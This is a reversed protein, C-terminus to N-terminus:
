DPMRNTGLPGRIGKLVWALGRVATALNKIATTRQTATASDWGTTPNAQAAAIITDLSTVAAEVAAIADLAAQGEPTPM